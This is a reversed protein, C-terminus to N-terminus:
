KSIKIFFVKVFGKSYQRALDLFYKQSRLWNQSKSWKPKAVHLPTSLKNSILKTQKRGTNTEKLVVKKEKRHYLCFLEQKKKEM